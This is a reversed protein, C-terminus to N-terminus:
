ANIVILSKETAFKKDLAERVLIEEEIKEKSGGLVIKAFDKDFVFPLFGDSYLLVTNGPILEYAGYRVFQVANKEGTLVGFNLKKGEFEIEQHNVVKSRFYVHEEQSGPAFDGRNEFQALFPSVLQGASIIDLERNGFQDLAMIGCDSIQGYYFVGNDIFGAVGVTAAYQKSIYDVTKPTVGLDDNLKKIKQNGFDFAEKLRELPKLDSKKLFEIVSNAGTEAAKQGPSPNPYPDQFLVPVGDFVAFYNGDVKVFDEDPVNRDNKEPRRDPCHFELVQHEM